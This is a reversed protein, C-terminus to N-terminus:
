NILENKHLTEVAEYFDWIPRDVKEAIALLDHEGDAYAMLDLYVAAQDVLHSQGGTKPYLGRKGLNPEGGELTSTYTQNAEIADICQCYLDFSLKLQDATVFELNDLSTHYEPYDHYKSRMISVVPLDIGPSCWQREDSARASYDCIRYDADNHHLVHHTVRDALTEGQRSKLYTFDDPGAVCVVQFGAVINQKMTKANQSLYAISGITEPLWLFRYSYKRNEQQLLWKALYATMIPGSLENNAMSPHCINTALMIEEQSEGPVILEGYILNGSALSSDIKVRYIQDTLKELDNQSLCFGWKREYYSTVYPIADPLEPRTYLHPRLEDLTLEGEFPESYSMIHLANKQFDIVKNGAQDMVNADTINWEDPVVWDFCKTGSPIKKIDLPATKALITLSQEVGAGTISRCIPFLEEMLEHMEAGINLTM